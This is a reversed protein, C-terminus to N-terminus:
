TVQKYIKEKFKANDPIQDLIPKVHSNFLGSRVKPTCYRVWGTYSALCSRDSGSFMGAEVHKRVTALRRRMRKLTSKRILVRNPFVRYGVFDVGRVGVPFVQWNDKIQVNLGDELYHRIEQFLARLYETTPGFISVDDMYRVFLVGKSELWNDFGTLYYNAFYQSPYNGIPLGQSFSDILEDMHRLLLEDETLKRIKMKLVDHDVSQFYKRIDLKLCYAAQDPRRLLINRTQYLATHIGRGPIAAHSRKSFQDMFEPELQMMLSWHAIRDPYYPLKSILREKGSDDIIRNKYPSTHYTGSLISEELKHLLENKSREFTKVARYHTKGRKANAHAVVLNGHNAVDALTANKKM